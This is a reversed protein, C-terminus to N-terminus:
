GASLSVAQGCNSITESQSQKVRQAASKGLHSGGPKCAELFVPLIAAFSASPRCPPVGILGSPFRIAAAAAHSSASLAAAAASVATFHSWMSTLGAWTFIQSSTARAKLRGM